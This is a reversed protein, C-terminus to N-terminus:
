HRFAGCLAFDFHTKFFDPKNRWLCSCSFDEAWDFRPIEASELKTVALMYVALGRWQECTGGEYEYGPPVVYLVYQQGSRPDIPDPSTNVPDVPVNPLGGREVLFDLFPVGDRDEDAASVDWWGKWFSQPGTAEGYDRPRLVPGVDRLYTQLSDNIRRLDDLRRADNAPLRRVAPTLRDFLRAPQLALDVLCVATVSLVLVRLWTPGYAAMLGAVVAVALVTGVVVLTEPQTLVIRLEALPQYLLAFAALLPALLSAVAGKTSRRANRATM